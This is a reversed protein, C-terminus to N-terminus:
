ELLAYPNQLVYQILILFTIFKYSHLFHFVVVQISNIIPYIFFIRNLSDKEKVKPNPISM